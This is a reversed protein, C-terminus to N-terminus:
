AAARLAARTAVRIVTAGKAGGRPRAVWAAALAGEADISASVAAVGRERGSVAELPRWALRGAPRVRALARPSGAVSQSWAVVADGRANMALSPEGASPGPPGETPGKPSLWFPAEWTEEGARRAITLVRFSYTELDFARVAVLANGAGDIAVEAGGLPYRGPPAIRQPAGWTGDAARRVAHIGDSAWVAVAQGADNSAVHPTAGAPISPPVLGAPPGFPGSAPRAVATVAGGPISGWVATAAGSPSLALDPNEVAATAGPDLATPAGFAGGPPRV